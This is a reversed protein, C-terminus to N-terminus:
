RPRPTPRTASSASAKSRSTFTKVTQLQQAMEKHCGLCLDPGEAVLLKPFDSTHSNHCAACNGSAVPGHAQKRGKTVDGHCSACLQGVNDSRLMERNAAGHPNHCGLCQGEPVPKHISKGM